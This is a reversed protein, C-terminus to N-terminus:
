ITSGRIVIEPKLLISKPMNDGKIVSELFQAILLGIKEVKYDVSTIGPECMITYPTNHYGIVAVDKPVIYGLQQLRKLGGVATIDEGFIIASFDKGSKLIEDIASIGGEIGRQTNFINSKDVPLKLSRMTELFGFQKQSGSYTDTDKVFLIDKHGNANLHKVCQESGYPEDILVSYVNEVEADLHNNVLIVPTSKASSIYTDKINNSNFVSGIVVIGDVNKDILMKFYNANEEIGGGTNCLMVSYGIKYLEREIAYATAAYHPIRIDITLVGITKMSNFVLGRALANPTYDHKELISQVHQRTQLNVNKKNNLVRSVTTISVGAEKAIDYINVKM